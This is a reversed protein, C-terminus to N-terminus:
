DPCRVEELEARIKDFLVVQKEYWQRSSGLDDADTTWIIAKKEETDIAAVRFITVVPRGQFINNPLSYCQGVEIQKGPLPFFIIVLALIFGLVTGYGM